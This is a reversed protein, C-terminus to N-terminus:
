TMLHQCLIIDVIFYINVNCYYYFLLGTWRGYILNRVFYECSGPYLFMKRHCERMNIRESFDHSHWCLVVIYVYLFWTNIM